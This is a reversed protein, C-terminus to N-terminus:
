AYNALQALFGHEAWALPLLKPLRALTLGAPQRGEL